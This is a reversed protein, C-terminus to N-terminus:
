ESSCTLRDTVRAIPALQAELVWGETGSIPSRSILPTSDSATVDLDSPPQALDSPLSSAPEDTTSPQAGPQSDCLKLKVWRFQDGAPDQRTLVQVIAGDPLQGLEQSVELEPQPTALLTMSQSLQLYSGPALSPSIPEHDSIGVRGVEPTNENLIIESTTPASQPSSSTFSERFFLLILVAATGLVGILGMLPLWLGRNAQKVPPALPLDAQMAPPQVAATAVRTKAPPMPTAAQLPLPASVTPSQKVSQMQGVVVGVTVNDHGNDTNALQVLNTVITTPTVTRSTLIPLVQAQWYQEVRSYDSLGDSCLLLAIDEDLILRQVVVHLATSNGMGLAQILAGTGPRNVVDTYFGYGLRVERAAVDDDFTIQHCSSSSIRYARSDGVHAIYIHVGFILAMVLTTGMRDRAQRAGRDNHLSIQDNATYIAQEIALVTSAPDHFPQEILWEMLPILEQRVTSIALQSAVDGGEHGGIGDCVLLLLPPRKEGGTRPDLVHTQTSGSKPYCADENRKRSPGQDTLVSLRYDVQYGAAIEALARDLCSALGEPTAIDGQKLQVCLTHLFDQIAPNAQPVLDQWSAGLAKLTLPHADGVLELFRVLSGDVRVCDGLLLSSAVQQELFDSWLRALQWLWNLQRLPSASPWADLLGPLLKPRQNAAPTTIAAANLLLLEQDTGENLLAYPQPVHPSHPALMLYPWVYNPVPNPSAPPLGPQTDLVIRQHQWSYRQALGELTGSGAAWLYHHPLFTECSTCQHRGEPNAAQCEPNPCNIM